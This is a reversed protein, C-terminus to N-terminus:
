NGYKDCISRIDLTQKEAILYGMIQSVGFKVTTLFLGYFPSSAVSLPQVDLAPFHSTNLRNQQGSNGFPGKLVRSQLVFHLTLLPSFIRREDQGNATKVM